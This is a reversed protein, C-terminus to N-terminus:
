DPMVKASSGISVAPSQRVSVSESPQVTTVASPDSEAWKSCVKSTVSPSGSISVFNYSTAKLAIPIMPYLSLPLVFRARAKARSITPPLAPASSQTEKCGIMSTLISPWGIGIFGKIEPMTLLVIRPTNDRSLPNLFPLISILM